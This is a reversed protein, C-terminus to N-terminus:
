SEKDFADVGFSKFVEAKPRLVDLVRNPNYLWSFVAVSAIADEDGFVCLLNLAFEGAFFGGVGIDDLLVYGVDKEVLPALEVYSSVDEHQGDCADGLEEPIVFAVQPGTRFDEVEVIECIEEDVEGVVGNLDVVVVVALVLVAVFNGVTLKLPVEVVVM